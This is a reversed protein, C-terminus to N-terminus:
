HSPSVVRQALFILAMQWTIKKKAMVKEIILRLEIPTDEPRIDTISM